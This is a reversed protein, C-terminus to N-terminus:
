INVWIVCGQKHEYAVPIDYRKIDVLWWMYPKPYIKLLETYTIELKHEDRCEIFSSYTMESCRLLNATGFVKKSGSEIIGITGRINTKSGRVEITKKGDLILNAWKPKIILGKMIDGKINLERVV